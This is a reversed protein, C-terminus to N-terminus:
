ILLSLPHKSFILSDLGLPLHQLVQDSLGCGWVMNIEGNMGKLVGSDGM